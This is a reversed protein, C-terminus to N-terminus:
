SSGLPPLLSALLSWPKARKKQYFIWTNGFLFSTGRPGFGLSVCLNLEAKDLLIQIMCDTPTPSTLITSPAGPPQELLDLQM